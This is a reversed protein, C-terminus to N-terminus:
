KKKGKTILESIVQGVGAFSSIGDTKTGAAVFYNKVQCYFHNM